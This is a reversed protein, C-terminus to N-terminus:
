PLWTLMMSDPSRNSAPSSGWTPSSSARRSTSSPTSTRTPASTVQIIGEAKANRFRRLFIDYNGNDYGDWAVWVSGDPASAIAPEWQNSKSQSVQIPKSWGSEDEQNSLFIGFSGEVFEQWVVWARGAADTTMRPFLQRRGAPAVYKETSWRGTSLELRRSMLRWRDSRYDSWVVIVGGSGDVTVASGSYDGWAQSVRYTKWSNGRRHALYVLNAEDHYATWAVFLDDGHAAVSPFDHQTAEGQTLAKVPPLYSVAVDSELFSKRGAAKLEALSFSFDGLSTHIEVRASDPATLAVFVGNPLSFYPVFDAGAGAPRPRESKRTSFSFGTRGLIQDPPAFHMGWTGLVRGASASITGKWLRPAQSPSLGFELSLVANAGNAYMADMGGAAAPEAIAQAALESSSGIRVSRTLIPASALVFALSLARAINSRSRM